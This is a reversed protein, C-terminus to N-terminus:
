NNTSYYSCTAPCSSTETLKNLVLSAASTGTYASVIRYSYLGILDGSALYYKGVTLTNNQVTVIINTAIPPSTCGNVATCSYKSAYYKNPYPNTTTSTTLTCTSGAVATCNVTEVSGSLACVSASLLGINMTIVSTRPGTQVSVGSVTNCPIYTYTAVQAPDTKTITYTLCPAM